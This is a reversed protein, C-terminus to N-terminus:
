LQDDGAVRDDGRRGFGARGHDGVRPQQRGAPTQGQAGRRRQRQVGRRAADQLQSRTRRQAHVDGGGRARGARRQLEGDVSREATGGRDGVPRQEAAEPRGRPTCVAGTTGCVRGGPLSITVAERSDSEVVIAWLDHREDVRRARTVDGNTVSFSEDRLTTYSIGVEESFEVRFNFASQGSHEVPVGTFSATLADSERAETNHITGTAVSVGIDAGSANSLTLTLTEGGDNVTDDTIPMSVTKTTDGPEFTM